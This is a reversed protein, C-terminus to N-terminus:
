KVALALSKINNHHVLTLSMRLVLQTLSKEKIAQTPIVGATPNTPNQAVKTLNTPNQAMKTPNTPNQAM